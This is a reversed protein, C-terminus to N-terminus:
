SSITLFFEVSFTGSNAVMQDKRSAIAWLKLMLPYLHSPISGCRREAFYIATRGRPPACRLHFTIKAKFHGSEDNIPPVQALAAFTRFGGMKLTGFDRQEDWDCESNLTMM